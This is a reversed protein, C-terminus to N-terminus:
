VAPSAPFFLVNSLVPKYFVATQPNMGVPSKDVLHFLFNSTKEATILSFMNHNELCMFNSFDYNARRHNTSPFYRLLLVYSFYIFISM